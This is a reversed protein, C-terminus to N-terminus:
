PLPTGLLSTGASWWTTSSRYQSLEVVLQATSDSAVLTVAFPRGDIADRGFLEQLPLSVRRIGADVVVRQELSTGDTFHLRVTATIAASSFKGVLLYGDASLDAAGGAVTWAPGLARSGGSVHGESSPTQWWAVNSGPGWWTAREAVVPVGNTATARVAFSANRLIPADDSARVSARSRAAIVHAREVVTGDAAAYTLTVQADTPEANALLVYTDFNANSVGEAMWWDVSPAPSGAANTGGGFLPDGSALMYMSREVVIPTGDDTTFVAAVDGPVLEPIEANAWLTMRAGAALVVDREVPALPTRRLFTAHVTTTSSTPNFLAYFLQFALATSGEAFHWTPAPPACAGAHQGVRSGGWQGWTVTRTVALPLDSEVLLPHEGGEFRLQGDTLDAARTAGAPIVILQRNDADADTGYRVLVRAPQSAHPNFMDVRSAIADTTVGEACVYVHRGVPHSGAVREQVNSLGDGDPDGTPDAAEVGYQREWANPLGDGDVDTEVAFGTHAGAMGPMWALLTQGAVPVLKQTELITAGANWWQFLRFGQQSGYGFVADPNSRAQVYTTCGPCPTRAGWNLGGDDSGFLFAREPQRRRSQPTWFLLSMEAEPARASATVGLLNTAMPLSVDFWSAGGDRTAQLASGSISAFAVQPRFPHAVVMSPCCRSGAGLAWEMDGRAWAVRSQDGIGLAYRQGLPTGAVMRAGRGNVSSPVGPWAQWTRGRDDSFLQAGWSWVRGPAAPDFFSPLPLPPDIYSGTSIGTTMLSWTTGADTSRMLGWPQYSQGTVWLEHPAAPNVTVQGFYYWDSPTIGQWHRGADTTKRVGATTTAYAVRDDTPDMTLATMRGDGLGGTSRFWSRGGDDSRFLPPEFAPISAQGLAASSASVVVRADALLRVDLSADSRWRGLCRIWELASVAVSVKAVFVGQDSGRLEADGTDCDFERTLEAHALVGALYLDGPGVRAADRLWLGPGAGLAVHAVATLDDSRWVHVTPGVGSDFTSSVVEPRGDDRGLRGGMGDAAQVMELTVPDRRVLLGSELVILHGSGDVGIMASTYWPLSASTVTSVIGGDASLVLLAQRTAPLIDVATLPPLPFRASLTSALVYIRGAPGRLLAFVYSDALPVVWEAVADDTSYKAVYADLETRGPLYGVPLRMGGSSAPYLGDRAVGALVYDTDSVELHRMESYTRPDSPERTLVDICAGNALEFPSCTILPTTQAALPGPVVGLVVVLGVIRGIVSPACAM